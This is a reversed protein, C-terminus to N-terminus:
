FATDTASHYQEIYRCCTFLVNDISRFFLHIVKTITGFLEFLKLFIDYVEFINTTANRDGVKGEIIKTHVKHLIEFLM